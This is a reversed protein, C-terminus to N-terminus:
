AFAIEEVPVASPLVQLNELAVRLAQANTFVIGIDFGYEVAAKINERNDDIFITLVDNSHNNKILFLEYIEKETKHVWNNEETPIVGLATDALIDLAKQVIAREQKGEDLTKILEHLMDIQVMLNSEWMNSLVAQKCGCAGLEYMISAVQFDLSDPGEICQQLFNAHIEQDPNASRLLHYMLHEWALPKLNEKKRDKNLKKRIALLQSLGSAGGVIGFKGFAAQMFQKAGFKKTFVVNNLDWAILIKKKNQEEDFSAGFYITEQVNNSYLGQKYHVTSIDATHTVCLAVVFLFTSKLSLFNM